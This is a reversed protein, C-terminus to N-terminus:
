KEGLPKFVQKSASPNDRLWDNLNKVADTNNNFDNFFVLLPGTKSSLRTLYDNIATTSTKQKEFGDLATKLRQAALPWELTMEARNNKNTNAEAGMVTLFMGIQYGVYDPLYSPSFEARLQSLALTTEYRERLDPPPTISAEAAVINCLLEAIPGEQQKTQRDDVIMPRRAAGLARSAARRIYRVGALEDPQMYQLKAAPMKTRAALWTYTAVLANKMREQGQKSQLLGKARADTSGIMSFLEEQGRFAWVRVADNENPNNIINTFEDLVAEQGWETLKVLVRTANIRAMPNKNQLLIRCHKIFIPTMAQVNGIQRQRMAAMDQDAPPGTFTRPMLRPSQDAHGILETLITSNTGVKAPDRERQVEDWTLRYLYYKLVKEVIAKEADTKLVNELEPSLALKMVANIETSRPIDKEAIEERDRDLPPFNPKAPAQAFGQVTLCLTTVFGILLRTSLTM